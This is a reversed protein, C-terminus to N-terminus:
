QFELIELWVEFIVEDSVVGITRLNTTYTINKTILSIKLPQAMEGTYNLHSLMHLYNTVNHLM